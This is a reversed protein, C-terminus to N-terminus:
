FGRVAKWGVWCGKRKWKLLQTEGSTKFKFPPKLLSKVFLPPKTWGPTRFAEEEVSLIKKGM